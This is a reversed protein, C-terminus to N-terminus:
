VTVAITISVVTVMLLLAMGWVRSEPPIRRSFRTPQKSIWMVFFYAEMSGLALNAISIPADFVVVSSVLLGAIVGLGAIFPEGLKRLAEPQGDLTALAFAGWASPIMFFIVARVGEGYSHSFGIAAVGAAAIALLFVGFRAYLVSITWDAVGRVRDETADRVSPDQHPSRPM